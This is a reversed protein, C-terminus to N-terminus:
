ALWWLDLLGVSGQRRCPFFGCFFFGAREVVSETLVM